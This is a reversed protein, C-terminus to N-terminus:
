CWVLSKMGIFILFLGALIELFRTPLHKLLSGSWFGLLSNIFTIFGILLSPKLIHCNFLMLSIGASFADISTGIGVLFLCKVGICLREQRKKKFSDVIFKIGLYSFILFVILNSWNQLYVKIFGTLFYGLIPMLFQFFGTFFALLMSNKYKENNFVLGYSFSILCADLSLALALLFISLYSM